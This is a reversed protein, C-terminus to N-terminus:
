RVFEQAEVIAAHLKYLKVKSELRLELVTDRVEAAVKLLKELSACVKKIETIHVNWSEKSFAVYVTKQYTIVHIILKQIDPWEPRNVLESFNTRETIKSFMLEARTVPEM